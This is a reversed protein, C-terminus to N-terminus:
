EVEKIASFIRESTYATSIAVYCILPQMSASGKSSDHMVM